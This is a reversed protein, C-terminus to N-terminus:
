HYLPLKGLFLVSIEGTYTGLLLAELCHGSLQCPHFFQVFNYFRESVTSNVDLSLPFEWLMRGTPPPLGWGVGSWGEWVGDWM